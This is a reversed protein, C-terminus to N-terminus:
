NYQVYRLYTIVFIIIILSVHEQTQVLYQSLSM